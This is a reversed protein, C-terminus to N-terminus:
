KKLIYENVYQEVSMNLETALERLNRSMIDKKKIIKGSRQKITRIHAGSPQYFHLKQDNDKLLSLEMECKKTNKGTGTIYVWGKSRTIATFLKNREYVDDSSKFIADVGLIYISGSENGKAKYITSLTVSDKKTFNVNTNITNQLNFTKIEKENLKEILNSFYDNIALNDLCIVCIDEPLLEERKIDTEIMEAVVQCEEEINNCKKIEILNNSLYEEKYDPSNELPRSIIMEEGEVSSGREVEFGIDEWGKRSEIRQVCDTGIKSDDAMNYVGMGISFASTLIDKSNRYCKKLIIDHDSPNEMNEFDVFFKGNENKGFLSKEDQMNTKLIDQFDDYAWIINNEKVVNHCLRYFSERFDQGEDILIYDYYKKLPKNNLLEKCVFEFPQKPDKLKADRFTLPAIGNVRCMKYYVGELRSGGWSHIVDIMEWNPSKGGSFKKYLRNIHKVVIENLAKTYYTYLIKKDPNDRHLEAVKRALIITKGTGALGRIRQFGNVNTTIAIFQENDYNIISNEIKSLIAGRSDTKKTNRDKVPISEDIGEIVSTVTRFVDTDIENHEVEGFFNFMDEQSSFVQIDDSIKNVDTDECYIHTYIKFKLDSRNKKLISKKRLQSDIIQFLYNLNEEIETIQSARFTNLCSFIHVDKNQTIALFDAKRKIDKNENNYFPYKYYLNSLGFDIKSKLSFFNEALSNAATDNKIKNESFKINMQIM